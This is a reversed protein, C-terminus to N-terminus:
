NDRISQFNMVNPRYSSTLSIGYKIGFFDFERNSFKSKKKFEELQKEAYNIEYQLYNERGSSSYNQYTKSIKELIQLIHNKDSSKYNIQLVSTGEQLKIVLNNKLWQSYKLNEVNEGKSKKLKKALKFVPQLVSPSRLITVETKLTNDRDIGPLQTGFIQRAQSLFSNNDNNEQKLVIQFNGEWIKQRTLSYPVSILISSLSILFLTKWRRKIIELLDNVDVEGENINFNNKSM